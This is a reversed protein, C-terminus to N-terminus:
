QQAIKLDLDPKTFRQNLALSVRTWFQIQNLILFVRFPSMRTSCRCKVETSNRAEYDYEAGGVGQSHANCNNHKHRRTWLQMSEHRVTRVYESHENQVYPQNKSLCINASLGLISITKLLQQAVFPSLHFALYVRDQNDYTVSMTYVLETLTPM